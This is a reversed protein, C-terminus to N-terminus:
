SSSKVLDVLRRRGLAKEFGAISRCIQHARQKSNLNYKVALEEYTLRPGRKQREQYMPWYRVIFENLQLWEM